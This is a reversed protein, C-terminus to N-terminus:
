IKYFKTELGLSVFFWSVAQFLLKFSPSNHRIRSSRM